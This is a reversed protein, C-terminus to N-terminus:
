GELDKKVEETIIPVLSSVLNDITQKIQTQQKVTFEGIAIGLSEILEEHEKLKKNIKKIDNEM